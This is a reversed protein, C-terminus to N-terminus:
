KNFFNLLFVKGNHCYPNHVGYKMRTLVGRVWKQIIVAKEFEVIKCNREFLDKLYQINISECDYYCLFNSVKEKGLIRIAKPYDNILM